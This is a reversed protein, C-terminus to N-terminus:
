VRGEKIENFMEAMRKMKNKNILYEEYNERLHRNLIMNVITTFNMEPYMKELRERVLTEIYLNCQKHGESNRRVM